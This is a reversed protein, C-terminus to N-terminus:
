ESAFYKLLFMIVVLDNCLWSFIQTINAIWFDGFWFGMNKALAVTDVPIIVVLSFFGFYFFLIHYLWMKLFIKINFKVIFESANVVNKLMQKQLLDRLKSQAQLARNTEFEDINDPKNVNSM